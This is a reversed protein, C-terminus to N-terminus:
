SAQSLWHSTLSDTVRSYSVWLSVWYSLPHSTLLTGSPASATVRLKVRMRMWQTLSQTPSHSVATSVTVSQTLSVWHILTLIGDEHAENVLKEQLRTILKLYRGEGFNTQVDNWPYFSPPQSMDASPEVAKSWDFVRSQPSVLPSAIGIEQYLIYVEWM